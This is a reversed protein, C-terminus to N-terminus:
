CGAPRFSPGLPTRKFVHYCPTQSESRLAGCEPNRREKNRGVKSAYKRRVEELSTIDAKDFHTVHPITTWCHTMHEVTKKRIGNLPQHAVPGWADSAVEVGELLATPAPTPTALPATETAGQAFNYVDQPTIRGTPDSTPIDPVKVGHERALRRVTPSALM